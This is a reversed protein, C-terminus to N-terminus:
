SCQGCSDRTVLRPKLLFRGSAGPDNADEIQLFLGEAAKIGIDRFPQRVTTLSPYVWETIPIDDYGVISLQNPVNLGHEQIARLAGIATEDNSAIVATFGKARLLQKMAEYGGQNSWDSQVIWEPNYEIGLARMTQLYGKFRDRNAALNDPGAIYAIRRHGLGFLYRVIDSAGAVNDVEVALIDEREGSDGVLAVPFPTERIQILDDENRRWFSVLIAGDVQGEYLLKLFSIERDENSASSFFICSYGKRQAVEEIGRIIGSYFVNSIDDVVVAIMNTRDLVLRRANANRHYNLEEIAKRIAEETAKKVQRGNLYRSVTSKSTSALRAVDHITPGM